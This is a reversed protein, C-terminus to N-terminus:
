GHLAKGGTAALVAIDDGEKEETGSEDAARKFQLIFDAGEGPGSRVSIKADHAQVIQYVIALGLGTGGDFDSQFPEFIKDIQNKPMGKGTDNFSVVFHSETARVTVTLTGGDPMARVANEAINWFVQKLRDADALTYAESIEFKRVLSIQPRDANDTRRDLSPLRNELLKLTEELVPVLNVYVFEYQKERTYSLFNSIITNLRESERNVINVLMKEEDNLVAVDSLVRVSGAISSLPNRIEHAIAAAMRGVAALRDSLRVERELRRMETLDDFNYVFGVAGRGPVTLSTATMRFTKQRRRGRPCSARVESHASSSTPAPLRDLFLAAIQKGVLESAYRELLLEAAPNVLTVHGAIDTTILGSSISQIIHEHQAQLDQLAGSADKLEVDVQRLRTSLRSALYAIAMYAVFNIVLTAQLSILASRSQSDSHLIWDLSSLELITAHLIFASVAVLLAWRRSLLISANIIILPYLFYFPSDFAGTAYVLLTAMGLDTAIQVWRHSVSDRLQSAVYVLFASIAYCFAIAAVFQRRNISTSTFNIVALEIGLLFTLILIRVKALWILWSHEYAPQPAISAGRDMAVGPNDEFQQM